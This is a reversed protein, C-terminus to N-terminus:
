SSVGQPQDKPAPMRAGLLSQTLTGGAVLLEKLSDELHEERVTLSSSGSEEAALLAAKRFLERIFAGSAGKLRQIMRNRDTLEVRLGRSYLDLLRSRCEDDPLPIEIAQDIRGPRAALAPELVDARNTTLIFLVDVDESLGDMQNLLEFLLANADVTQRERQTGVLDVDELIVTSPELMRALRCALEIAGMGAGTLLIVTRGTMQTALYMATLTKGTGPPGFLLIGRKL